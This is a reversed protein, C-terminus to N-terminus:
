EAAMKEQRRMREVEAREKEERTRQQAEEYRERWVRETEADVEGEGAREVEKTAPVPAPKETPKQVIKEKEATRQAEKEKEAREAVAAAQAEKEDRVMGELERKLEEDDVEGSVGVAVEGGIRIASDVEEQDAMVEALEETTKEVHDLDLAPNALITKLTSTSTTYAAMIEIDGKAQDISRLVAELQQTAGIRKLLLDELQKKSKLHSLAIPKQSLSLHHKAKQQCRSILIDSKRTNMVSARYLIPLIPLLDVQNWYCENEAGTMWSAALSWICFGKEFGCPDSMDCAGDVKIGEGFPIPIPVLLLLSYLLPLLSPPTSFSLIFLSPLLVYRQIQKEISDVQSDLKKLTDRIAVVGIDAETIPHDEV